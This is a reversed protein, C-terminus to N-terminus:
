KLFELLEANVIDPKEEHCLHGCQDIAVTRVDKAMARWTQEMDVLTVGVFDAGWISLVPCEILVHEDEADQEADQPMARYDACSGRVAGPQQYNKVYVDLEAQSFIEPNYSWGRYFHTLFVEEKGEILAEPLDPVRLFYFFWGLGPAALNKTRSLALTPINDVVALRHLRHPHDKAFRTAVRAGRDHGVLAIRDHGLHDMLALLDAAMTRKDYGAAPKDTAGYGRLDPAIVTYREALVPIQKRWGFWMEPFGHLLYVPPGAGASVWHQRIGNLVATHHTIRPPELTVTM